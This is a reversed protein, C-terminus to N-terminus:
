NVTEKTLEKIKNGVAVNQRATVQINLIIKDVIIKVRLRRVLPLSVIVAVVTAVSLSLKVLNELSESTELYLKQLDLVKEEIKDCDCDEERVNACKKTARVINKYDAGNEM